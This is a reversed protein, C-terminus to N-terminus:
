MVNSSLWKVWIAAPIFLIQAVVTGLFRSLILMLVMHNMQSARKKGSLVQDTLLAVKPDITLALLITAIGNIMGSSLTATTARDPNLLGAYLASLVGVTYIATICTNLLLLRKPVGGIRFSHILKLSPHRFYHKVAGLHKAQLAEKLLYPVSGSAELRQIARAFIAVFTPVLLAGLVTGISAAGIIWRFQDKVRDVLGTEMARDILSAILVMQVMNATRSFIVIINFLSFASALRATRTGALRAAYSLTEIANILLTFLLIVLLKDTM